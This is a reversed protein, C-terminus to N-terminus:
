AATFVPNQTQTQSCSHEDRQSSHGLMRDSPEQASHVHKTKHSVASSNGLPPEVTKQKEWCHWLPAHREPLMKHKSGMEMSVAWNRGVPTTSSTSDRLAAPGPLGRRWAPCDTDTPPDPHAAPVATNEPTALATTQTHGFGQRMSSPPTWVRPRPWPRGVTVRLVPGQGCPLEGAGQEISEVHQTRGGAAGQPGMNGPSRCVQGGWQLWRMRASPPLAAM